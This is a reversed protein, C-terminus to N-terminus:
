GNLQEAALEYAKAMAELAIAAETLKSWIGLQSLGSGGTEMLTWSLGAHQGFSWASADVGIRKAASQVRPLLAETIWKETVRFDSM